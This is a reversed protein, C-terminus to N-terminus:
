PSHRVWMENDMSNLRSEIDELKKYVHLLLQCQMVPFFSEVPIAPKIQELCDVVGNLIKEIKEIDM